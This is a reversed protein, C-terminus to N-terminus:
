ELWNKTNRKLFIKYSAELVTCSLAKRIKRASGKGINIVKLLESVSEAVLGRASVEFPILEVHYNLSRLNACLGLYRVTKEDHRRSINGEMPCTLEAIVVKQEEPNWLILDPRQGSYMLGAPFSDYHFKHGPIDVFVHYGQKVMAYEVLDM